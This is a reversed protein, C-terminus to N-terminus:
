REDKMQKREEIELCVKKTPLLGGKVKSSNWKPGPSSSRVHTSSPNQRSGEGFNEGGYSRGRTGENRGEVQKGVGESKVENKVESKVENRGENKVEGITIVKSNPKLDVEINESNYDPRAYYKISVNQLKISYFSYTLIEVYGSMMGKM